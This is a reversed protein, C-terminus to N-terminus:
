ILRVTIATTTGSLTIAGRGGFRGNPCLFSSPSAFGQLEEARAFANGTNMNSGAAPGEIIYFASVRYECVLGFPLGLVRFSANIIQDRIRVSPLTGIFGVYQIHWPLSAQQILARASGGSNDSCNPTDVTARNVYGILSGVVKVITSSHFTGEMTANCSITQSEAAFQLPAYVTRFNRNSLFIRGASASAVLSASLATAALTGVFLKTYLRM